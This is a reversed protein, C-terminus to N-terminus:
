SGPLKPKLLDAVIATFSVGPNFPTESGPAAAM